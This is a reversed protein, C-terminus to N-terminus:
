ILDVYYIDGERARESGGNRDGESEGEGLRERGRKGGREGRQRERVGGGVREVDTLSLVM